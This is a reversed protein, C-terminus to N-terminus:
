IQRRIFADHERALWATVGATAPLRARRNCVRAGHMNQRAQGIWQAGSPISATDVEGQIRFVGLLDLKAQKVLFIVFGPTLQTVLRGEDPVAVHGIQAGALAVAIADM